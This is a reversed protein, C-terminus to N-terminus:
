LGWVPRVPELVPKVLKVVGTAGGASKQEGWAPVIRVSAKARPMQVRSKLVGRSPHYKDRNAWEKAMREERKRKFCFEDKHGEKGCYGCRFRVLKPKPKSQPEESPKEGSLEEVSKEESAKESEKGFFV